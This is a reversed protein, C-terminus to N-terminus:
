HEIKEQELKRLSRVLFMTQDDRAESQRVMHESAKFSPEHKVWVHESVTIPMSSLLLYDHGELSFAIKGLHVSGEVSGEFPVASVLYRGEGPIYLMLTADPSGTEISSGDANAIVQNDRVLVPAVIRFEKPNPDLTEQPRYVLPPIHDLYEGEVEVKGLGAVEFEQNEGPELSLVKEPIDKFLAETYNVETDGDGPVYKARIRLQARDGVKGTLRTNMLLLGERGHDVFDCTNAKQSGDVTIICIDVKGSHTLGSPAIKYKLELFRGDASGARARVLVVGGSLAVIAILMAGFALKPIRMTTLGKQWWGIKNVSQRWDAHALSAVEDLSALRRLEAGIAAYENLQERCAKCGGIHEAADRPIRKGDCLASIYEGVQECNM